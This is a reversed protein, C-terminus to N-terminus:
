WERWEACAQCYPYTCTDSTGRRPIVRRSDEGIFHDKEDTKLRIAAFPTQRRLPEGCAPQSTQWDGEMRVHQIHFWTGPTESTFDGCSLSAPFWESDSVSNEIWHCAIAWRWLTLQYIWLVYWLALESHTIMSDHQLTIDCLQTIDHTTTDTKM